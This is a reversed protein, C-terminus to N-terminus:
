KSSIKCFKSIRAACFQSFRTSRSFHQLIVIQHGFDANICGLVLRPFLSTDHRHARRARPEPRPRARDEACLCPLLRSQTRRLRMATRSEVDPVPASSMTRPRVFKPPSTRPQILTSKQTWIIMKEPKELDVLNECKQVAAFEVNASQKENKSLLKTFKGFNPNQM